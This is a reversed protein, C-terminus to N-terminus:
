GGGMGDERKRKEKRGVTSRRTVVMLSLSADGIVAAGLFGKGRGRM